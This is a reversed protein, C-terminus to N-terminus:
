KQPPTSEPFDGALVSVVELSLLKQAAANVQEVTLGRFRDIRDALFQLDVGRRAYRQLLDCLSADESLFAEIGKEYSIISARLEEETFGDSKVKTLVENTASLLAAKNEPNMVAFLMFQGAADFEATQFQCGIQYSLGKEERVGQALRSDLSGGGLIDAAITLAEFDEDKFHAKLNAGRMYVASAQDRVKIEITEGKVPFSKNELRVFKAEPNWNELIDNLKRMAKNKDFKGVVTVHGRSGSLLGYCAKVSEIKAKRLETFMEQFTPVYQHDSKEVPSLARGLALQALMDPSNREQSLDSLQSSKLQSFEDESFQPKRLIEHLLDLTEILFEERGELSVVLQGPESSLQIQSKYKTQLQAIQERTYKETGLMMCPGLLSAASIAERTSFDAPTGFDLTLQLHFVNGRTQKPLFSFTVGSDLKGESLRKQIELPRPEFADDITVASKSSKYDNVIKKVDPRSPITSRKPQDTPIYIGTTRNDTRLYEAAVRKVDDMSVQEIRDRTLFFLRWDGYASWDSLTMALEKSDLLSKEFSKILEAKSQEMLEMTLHSDLNSEILETLQSALQMVDPESTAEEVPTAMATLTGPDYCEMAMATVQSARKTKVMERYLVGNPKMGMMQSLLKVAPYDTHSASPIHYVVGAVPTGGTRRLFVVREGDQTPEQTYTQELDTDPKAIAGFHNTAIEVVKKEDVKGTVILVVNDPRYYKSYFRRLNQVPVREIDAKSGIVTKGYNHWEFANANMRQMLMQQPSNENMEFESRVVTMESFLDQARIYCNVLRDAEMAIAWELNENTAPLTEYYNTRDYWTTGNMDTAGRQKLEEDINPHMPTGKFLMHELLHAMGTEGYGEHRSGVLVTMNVTLVQSSADPYVLVRCGNPLRYESVGEVETVRAPLSPPNDQGMGLGSMLIFIAM